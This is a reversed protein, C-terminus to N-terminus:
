TRTISTCGENVDLYPEFSQVQAIRFSGDDQALEIGDRVLAAKLSSLVASAAQPTANGALRAAAVAFLAPSINMIIMIGDIMIVIIMILIIM